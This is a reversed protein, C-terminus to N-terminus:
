AQLAKLRAKVQAAVLEASRAMFRKGREVDFDARTFRGGCCHKEQDEPMEDLNVLGEQFAEAMLAEYLGGHGGPLEQERRLLELDNTAYVIESGAADNFEAAVRRVMHEQTPGNHGTLLVVLAAGSARCENVIDVLLNYYTEDRLQYTSGPLRFGAVSDMGRRIPQDPNGRRFLDIGWYVPPLVVGGTLDAARLCVGWAKLTDTGLPSCREHYEITGLPQYIVPSEQLLAWFQRAKLFEARRHPKEGPRWLPKAQRHAFLAEIAERDHPTM